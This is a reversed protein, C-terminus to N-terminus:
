NRIQKNVIKCFLLPFTGPSKVCSFNSFNPVDSATCSVNLCCYESLSNLLDRSLRQSQIILSINNFNLDHNLRMELRMLPSKTMFRSFLNLIKSENTNKYITLSADACAFRTPVSPFHLDGLGFSIWTPLWADLDYIGCQVM